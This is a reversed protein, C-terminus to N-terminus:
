SLRNPRSTRDYDHKLMEFDAPIAKVISVIQRNESKEAAAKAIRLLDAAVEFNDPTIAERDILDIAARAIENFGTIVTPAKLVADLVKIKLPLSSVQFNAAMLDVAILAVRAEGLRSAIDAAERLLVYRAAVDNTTAQAFELLKAALRLKVTTSASAFHAQIADQNLRPM